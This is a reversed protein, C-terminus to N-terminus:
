EDLLHLHEINVQVPSAQNPLTPIVEGAPAVDFAPLTVAANPAPEVEESMLAGVPAISLGTMSESATTRDAPPTDVAATDSVAPMPAPAPAPTSSPSPSPASSPAPAGHEGSPNTASSSDPPPSGHRVISVEAGVKTLSERYKLATAKDCDSKIRHPLGDLLLAASAHEVSFLQCIGATVGDREFGALLNGSLYVDFSPDM